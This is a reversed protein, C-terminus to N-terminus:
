GGWSTAGSSTDAGTVYAVASNVCRAVAKSTVTAGTIADINGSDDTTGVVFDGNGNLFQSLFAHGTLANAGLGATEHLERIVLGTVRGASSVGILMTIDGAYGYTTTEIVFGSESKYVGRILEDHGTHTEETFDTSGPLITQMMKLKEAQANQAAVAQLSESVAFLIVATLLISLITKKM